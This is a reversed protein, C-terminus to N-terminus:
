NIQNEELPTSTEDAELLLISEIIKNKFTLINERTWYEEPTTDSSVLSTRNDNAIIQGNKIFTLNPMSLRKNGTDDTDLYDQLITVLKRYKNSNLNRDDKIDVYYIKEINNELAIDDLIKAYHQCWDSGPNCFFIVGTQNNLINISEDINIIKFVHNETILTYNSVFKDIEKQETNVHEFKKYILFAGVIAIVIILSIKIKKM